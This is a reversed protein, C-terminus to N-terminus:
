QRSPVFMSCGEEFVVFEIMVFEDSGTSRNFITGLLRCCLAM